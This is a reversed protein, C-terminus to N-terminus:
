RGRMAEFEAVVCEVFMDPDPMVKPDANVGVYVKDAFSFITIGLGVRAPQPAWFMGNEIKQGAFYRAESPGAVNTIVASALVGVQKAVANQLGSPIYGFASVLNYVTQADASQKLLEMRARVEALRERPDAMALPVSLFVLGFKNSLSTVNNNKRLNVPIAARFRAANVPKEHAVMYRRLGGIIVTIMIDNLTGGLQSRMQNIETISFPRSAAVQKSVGLKNSFVTEPELVKLALQLSSQTYALGKNVYDSTKDPDSLIDLGAVVFKKALHRSLKAAILAQKAIQPLDNPDSSIAQVSSPSPEQVSSASTAQVSSASTDTMSMLLAALAIGDGIVHHIRYLLAGGGDYNEIVHIQWLPKSYDLATSVLDSALAQLMAQDGPEPLAVRHVHANLNFNPDDEWYPWAMPLSSQVVRQRLRRHKLWREQLVVKLKEVDLPQAFTLVGSVMMLNTKDEIGLIAADLSSLPEYSDPM